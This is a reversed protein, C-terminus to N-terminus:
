KNKLSKRSKNRYQIPTLGTIRKFTKFFTPYYAYGTMAAITSAPFNTDELFSRAKNIRVLVLYNEISTNTNEKFVRYLHSRNVNLQAAIESVKIAKSYNTDIYKQVFSVYKQQITITHNNEGFISINSQSEFYTLLKTLCNLTYITRMPNDILEIASDFIYQCISSDEITTYPNSAFVSKEVLPKALSGDFAFFYLEWPENEDAIQVLLENPRVIFADNEKLVYKKDNTEITGSGTKIIHIIYMDRYHSYMSKPFCKDWGLQILNLSNNKETTITNCFFNPLNSYEIKRM